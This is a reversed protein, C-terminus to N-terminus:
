VVPPSFQVAKWTFNVRNSSRTKVFVSKVHTQAASTALGLQEGIGPSTLGTILLNSVRIEALSLGYSSGFAEVRLQQKGDTDIFTILCGSLSKELEM